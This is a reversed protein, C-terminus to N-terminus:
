LKALLELILYDQHAMAQKLYFLVKKKPARFHNLGGNKKVIQMAEKFPWSKLTQSLQKNIM